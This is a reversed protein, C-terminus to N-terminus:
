KGVAQMATIHELIQSITIGLDQARRILGDLELFFEKQKRPRLEEVNAAFSGRGSVSYLFGDKEMASYAKQITNPNISLEIALSRVSPLPEDKGIVGKLILDEIKGSVQEYLPRKDRFDINILM